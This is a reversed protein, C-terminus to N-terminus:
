ERRPRPSGDISAAGLGLIFAARRFRTVDVGGLFRFSAKGDKFLATPLAPALGFVLQGDDDLTFPTPGAM